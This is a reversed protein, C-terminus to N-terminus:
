PQMAHWLKLLAEGRTAGSPPSPKGAADHMAAALQTPNLTDERLQEFGDQWLRAVTESLSEGGRFGCVDM